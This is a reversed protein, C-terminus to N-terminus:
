SSKALAGFVALIAWIIIGALGVGFSIWMWMKAKNSSDIAGQINGTQIRGNVQAAYVIAPIGLPVCCFITVLIAPVLYNLYNSIGQPAEQVAAQRLVEGCKVCKWVNEENQTGCKRCYM